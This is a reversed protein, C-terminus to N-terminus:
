PRWQTQPPHDFVGLPDVYPKHTLVHSHMADAAIRVTM